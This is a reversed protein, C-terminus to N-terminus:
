LEDCNVFECVFFLTKEILSVHIDFGIVLSNINFVFHCQLSRNLSSLTYIYIDMLLLIYFNSCTVELRNSKIHVKEDRISAESISIYKEM